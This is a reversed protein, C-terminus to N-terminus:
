GQITRNKILLSFPRCAGPLGALRAGASSRSRPWILGQNSGDPADASSVHVFSLGDDLRVAKYQVNDPQEAHLQEFVAEILRVYEAVAAPRIQYSVVASSIV